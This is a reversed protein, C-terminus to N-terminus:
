VSVVRSIQWFQVQDFAFYSNSHFFLPAPATNPIRTNQMKVPTTQAAVLRTIKSAVIQIATNHYTTPHQAPNATIMSIKMNALVNRFRAVADM